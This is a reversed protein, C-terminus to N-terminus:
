VVVKLWMGSKGRVLTYRSMMALVMRQPITCHAFRAVKHVLSIAVKTLTYDLSYRKIELNCICPVCTRSARALM